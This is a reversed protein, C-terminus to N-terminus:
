VFPNRRIKLIYKWLVQIHLKNRTSENTIRSDHNRNLRLIPHSKHPDPLMHLHLTLSDYQIIGSLLNVTQWYSKKEGLIEMESTMAGIYVRKQTICQTWAENSKNERWFWQQWIEVYLKPRSHLTRIYPKEHLESESESSMDRLETVSMNISCHLVSTMEGGGVIVQLYREQLEV